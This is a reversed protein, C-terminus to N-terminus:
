GDKTVVVDTLTSPAAEELMQVVMRMSPRSYPVKVTCLTAIRLVKMADDKFHKPITSDVLEAMDEITRKNGCVWHVIDKNEGFESENPKKGTVLEMLVVGFSYVDSKETVKCSYAYEPAMYGLTGAVVNTWNGAGRQVIKALGFDAIRPKWEKDILINSSKVDRHIVPRDCGHHLYELGRAAGLAIEYRVDWAMPTKQCNHLKDWLSGNPLFEYVLLSSDESTISCYLKVVNVHRISSLAAVEADYEPTRCSRKLMASSSRGSGPEGPNSTWIHKVALEKGCKLVVKYVNGSGGKGIVNEAKIGEIVENENFNIVHYQKLDWSNTKLPKEEFKNQKLKLFFICALSVLLVMIGAVLCLIINRIRSSGTSGLSCPRFNELTESCLGPNGKLGDIFAPISLSDPVPGFFNNNSLDLLSLKLSSLSSPIEGSLRNSSLNLSNLTPLSGLSTPIEGSLSNGAINIESLSICSSLSEPISGSFNNGDLKLSGLKELNGITDPIKGSFQNSSLKISVLSSAESIGSPLQGSFKNDSLFLQALSKAEAIDSTVPGDFQNMSLDIIEMNPLGWLGSPIRGSLSNRNVLFRVMASCNVYTEPISGTFSNNLMALETMNNNRCMDPPIPGSLSNDSVDIYQLGARSGLKQPLPGTFNNAYLSFEILSKFDGFETPIGGSFRNQFLQLSALNTLFRLESIDGELQNNSVDLYVLSTLDRFGIPIKGTLYNDYLEIQRLKQLKGIDSPIEGTLLNDSLELNELQTLNGIGMPIKGTISCNTLYLWYLKELKLVEVPFPSKEFKNDGLSLFGLSTLNELSKWPFVGSIGSANLNLYTLKILNSFEPMVGSFSNGGLDLYKLNSCKRLDESISGHFSNSGLSLKQLSQLGCLSDFRITGGLSKGALNIESVLGNSNCIIGTFNCVSNGETWSGFVDDANSTRVSSKFKILMQLEVSLSSGALCLVFLTFLIMHSPCQRSIDGAFM